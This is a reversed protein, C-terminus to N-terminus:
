EINLLSNITNENKVKEKLKLIKEKFSKNLYKLNNELENNLKNDLLLDIKNTITELFIIQEKIDKDNIKKYVNDLLLDIKSKIINNWIIQIEFIWKQNDAPISEEDKFYIIITDATTNNIKLLSINTEQLKNTHPPSLIEFPWELTSIIEDDKILDIKKITHWVGSVRNFNSFTKAVININNIIYSKWFNFKIWRKNDASDFQFLTNRDNDYINNIYQSTIDKQSSVEVDKILDISKQPTDAYVNSFLFFFFIVIINKM